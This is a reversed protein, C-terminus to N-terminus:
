CGDTLKFNTALLADSCPQYFGLLSIRIEQSFGQRGIDASRNETNDISGDRSGFLRINTLVMVVM